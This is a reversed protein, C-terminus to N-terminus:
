AIQMIKIEALTVHFDRRLDRPHNLLPHMKPPRIPRVIKMEPAQRIFYTLM